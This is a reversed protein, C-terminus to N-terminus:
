HHYGLLIISGTVYAKRLSGNSLKYILNLIFEKAEDIIVKSMKWFILM